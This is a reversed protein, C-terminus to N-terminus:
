LHPIPARLTPDCVYSANFATQDFDPNLPVVPITVSEGNIEMTGELRNGDGSWMGNMAQLSFDTIEIRFTAAGVILSAILTTRLQTSPDIYPGIQEFQAVPTAVDFVGQTAANEGTIPRVQGAISGSHIVLKAPLLSVGNQEDWVSFESLRAEDLDIVIAGRSQPVVSDIVGAVTERQGSVTRSSYITATGGLRTLVNNCSTSATLDPGPAVQCNLTQWSVSGQNPPTGKVSTPALLVDNAEYACVTDNNVMSALVGATKILLRGANAALVPNMSCDASSAPLAVESMCSAWSSRFDAAVYNPDLVPAEGPLPIPSAEGDVSIRGSLWNEETAGVGVQADLDSSDIMFSFTSGGSQMTVEGDTWSLAEIAAEGSPLSCAGTNIDKVARPRLTGALQGAHVVLSSGNATDQSELETFSMRLTIVAPDWTMPIIPNAPDGSRIGYFTKTGSVTVKGQLLRQHGECDESVVKAVPFDLTCNNVSWTATGGATGPAGSLQVADLVGQASFGCSTDADLARTVSAVMPVTLRAVGHSLAPKISKCQYSIPVLLDEKCAFSAVHYDREYDVDLLPSDDSDNPLAVVKERITITGEIWNEHPGWRGIQSSFSSNSVHADLEKSESSVHVLANTYVINTELLDSTTISCIGTTASVGLHPEADFSLAGSNMTLANKSDSFRVEFDNFSLEAHITAADASTPIVPQDPNGTLLGTVTKTASFTIKGGVRMVRGNCDTAWESLAGYDIECSKASWTVKGEGGVDGDVVPSGLVEPSSLGCTTDAGIISTLISVNRVTLRGVASGVKKPALREASCAAGLTILLLAGALSLIRQM